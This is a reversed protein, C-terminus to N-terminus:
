WIPPETLGRLPPDTPVAKGQILVRYRGMASPEILRVVANRAQIYALADTAAQAAAYLM